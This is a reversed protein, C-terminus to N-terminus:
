RNNPWLEEPLRSRKHFDKKNLNLLVLLSPMGNVSSLRLILNGNLAPFDTPLESRIKSAAIKRTDARTGIPQRQRKSRKKQPM